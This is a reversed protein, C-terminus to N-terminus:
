VNEIRIDKMIAPRKFRTLFRFRRKDVLHEGHVTKEWHYPRIVFEISARVTAFALLLWYLPSLLSYKVLSYRRRQYSALLNLYVFLFNGILFSGASIYLIPDPFLAQIFTPRAVLWVIFMCWYFLNLVNIIVGAPVIFFFGLMNKWGGVEDKFRFPHRLHVISTQIFGKM